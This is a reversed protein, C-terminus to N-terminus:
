RPGSPRNPPTRSARRDGGRSYPTSVAAASAYSGMVAAKLERLAAPSATLRFSKRGRIHLVIAGTVPDCEAAILVRSDTSM